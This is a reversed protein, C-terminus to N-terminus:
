QCGTIKVSVKSGFLEEHADEPKFRVTVHLYKTPRSLKNGKKRLTSETEKSFFVGIYNYM